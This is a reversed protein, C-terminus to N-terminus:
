WILIGFRQFITKSVATIIDLLSLMAFSAELACVDGLIRRNNAPIGLVDLSGQLEKERMAGLGNMDGNSLCLSHLGARVDTGDRDMEVLKLITPAFFMCEDDPHATVLLINQPGGDHRAFSYNTEQKAQLSAYPSSLLIVWAPLFLALLFRRGVSSIAPLTMSLTSNLQRPRADGGHHCTWIDIERGRM